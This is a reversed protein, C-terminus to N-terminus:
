RGRTRLWISATKDADASGYTTQDGSVGSAVLGEEADAQFIYANMINHVFYLLFLKLCM